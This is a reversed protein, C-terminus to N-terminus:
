HDPRPHDGHISQSDLLASSYFQLSHRGTVSLSEVRVPQVSRIPRLGFRASCNFWQNSDISVRLCSTSRRISHDARSKVQELKGCPPPSHSFVFRILVSDDHMVDFLEEHILDSQHVSFVYYHFLQWALGLNRSYEISLSLSRNEKCRSQVPFELFRSRIDM